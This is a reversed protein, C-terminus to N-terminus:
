AKGSALPFRGLSDGLSFALGDRREGACRELPM